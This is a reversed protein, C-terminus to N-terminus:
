CSPSGTWPENPNTASKPELTLPELDERLKAVLEDVNPLPNGAQANRLAELMQLAHPRPMSIIELHRAAIACLITLDGGTRAQTFAAVRREEEDALTFLVQRLDDIDAPTINNLLSVKTQEANGILTAM